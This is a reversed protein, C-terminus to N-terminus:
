APRNAYAKARISIKGKDAQFDYAYKSILGTGHCVTCKIKEAHGGCEVCVAYPMANTLAAYASELKMVINQSVWSFLRDENKEAEQVHCKVRSIATMLGQVEQRRNWYPLAEKPIPIGQADVAKEPTGNQEPNSAQRIDEEAQEEPTKPSNAHNTDFTTKACKASKGESNSSKESSKPSSLLRYAQSIGSIKHAHIATRYEWCKIYNNATEYSFDLNAPVWKKWHGRPISEKTKSLMSGLEIAGSLMGGADRLLAAHKQNIEKIHDTIRM